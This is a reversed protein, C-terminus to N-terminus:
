FVDGLWSEVSESAASEEGEPVRFVPSPLKGGSHRKLRETIYLQLSEPLRFHATIDRLSMKEERVLPAAIIHHLLAVWNTIRSVNTSGQHLRVEITRHRKLAFVNIASAHEEGPHQMYTVDKSESKNPRCYSSTRRSPAVIATLLPLTRVLKRYEKVGDSNRMDLHIHLGCSKNAMGSCARLIECTAAIDQRFQKRKTLLRVEAPHRALTLKTSRISGDEAVHISEDMGALMFAGKLQEITFATLCEIEIGIHPEDSLPVKTNWIPVNPVFDKDRLKM